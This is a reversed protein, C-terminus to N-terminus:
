DSYFSGPRRNQAKAINASQFEVERAQIVKRQAYDRFKTCSEFESQNWQLKHSEPFNRVGDWILSKAQAREVEKGGPRPVFLWTTEEFTPDIERYHDLEVLVGTVTQDPMLLAFVLHADLIYPEQDRLIEESPRNPVEIVEELFIAENADNLNNLYDRITERKEYGIRSGPGPGLVIIKIRTNNKGDRIRARSEEWAQFRQGWSETFGGVGGEM